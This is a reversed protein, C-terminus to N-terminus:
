QKDIKQLDGLAFELPAESIEFTSFSLGAIGTSYGLFRLIQEHRKTEFVVQDSVLVSQLGAEDDGGFNELLLKADGGVPPSPPLNESFYNPNSHYKNIVEGNKAVWFELISDDHVLVSLVRTDKPRSLQEAVRPVYDEDQGESKRDLVLKCKPSLKLVYFQDIPAAEIIAPVDAGCVMHNVYFGGM